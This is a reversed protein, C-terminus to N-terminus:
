RIYLQAKGIDERESIKDFNHVFKKGRWRRRREDCLNGERVAKGDFQCDEVECYKGRIRKDREFGFILQLIMKATVTLRAPM